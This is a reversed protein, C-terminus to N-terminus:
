KVVEPTLAKAPSVHFDVATRTETGDAFDLWVRFRYRGAMPFSGPFGLPEASYGHGSEETIWHGHGPMGLRARVATPAARGESPEVQVTLRHEDGVNVSKPISFTVEAEVLEARVTHQEAGARPAFVVMAVIFLTMAIPWGAALANTRDNM